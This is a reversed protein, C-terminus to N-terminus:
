PQMSGEPLKRSYQWLLDGTAANLAQVNDGYGHVFIVGDHILPTSENAGGAAVLDM